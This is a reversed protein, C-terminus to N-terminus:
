HLEVYSRGASRTKPYNSLQGLYAAFDDTPHGGGKHLAGERDVVVQGPLAGLQILCRNIGWAIDDFRKSFIPAAALMKSCPLKSTVLYCKRTQGWGVPIETEMEM